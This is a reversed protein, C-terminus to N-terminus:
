CAVAADVEAPTLGPPLLDTTVAPAHQVSAPHDCEHTRAVLAGTLDLAAVIETTSPVLSAIRM